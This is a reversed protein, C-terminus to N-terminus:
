KIKSFFGLLKDAGAEDLATVTISYLYNGELFVVQKQYINVAQMTCTTQICAYDTVPFNIDVLGYKINTAGVGELAEPIADSILETFEKIGYSRITDAEETANQVIVSINEHFEADPDMAYAEYFTSGILPETAGDNYEEALQEKTYLIWTSPVEMKLNIAENSYINGSITAEPYGESVPEDEKTTGGGKPGCAAFVLIATLCLVLLALYKKMIKM